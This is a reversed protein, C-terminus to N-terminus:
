VYSYKGLCDIETCVSYIVGFLNLLLIAVASGPVTNETGPDATLEKTFFLLVSNMTGPDATM